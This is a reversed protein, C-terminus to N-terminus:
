KKKILDLLKQPAEMREDSPRKWEVRYLEKTDPHISGPGVVQRGFTKFEIGSFQPYEDLPLSNM